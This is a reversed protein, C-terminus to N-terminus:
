GGEKNLLSRIATAYEISTVDHPVSADFDTVAKACKEVVDPLVAQLGARAYIGAVEYESSVAGNLVEGRKALVADIAKRILDDTLITM